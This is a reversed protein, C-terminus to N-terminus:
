VQPPLSEGWKNNTPRSNQPKTIQKPKKKWAGVDLLLETALGVRKSFLGVRLPELFFQYNSGGGLHVKNNTAGLL